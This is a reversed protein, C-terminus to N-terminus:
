VRRGACPATAGGQPVVRRVAVRLRRDGCWGCRRGGQAATDCGGPVSWRRGTAGGATDCRLAGSVAVVSWRGGPRDCRRRGSTEPEAAGFRGGGAVRRVASGVLASRLAGVVACPRATTVRDVRGAVM